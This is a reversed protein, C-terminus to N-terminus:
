TIQFELGVTDHNRMLGLTEKETQKYLPCHLEQDTSVTDKINATTGSHHHSTSLSASVCVGCCVASLLTVCLQHANICETGKLRRGWLSHFSM